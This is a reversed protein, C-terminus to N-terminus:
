GPLMGEPLECTVPLRPHEQVYKAAREVALKVARIMEQQQEVPVYFVTDISHRAYRPPLQNLALCTVDELAGPVDALGSDGLGSLVQQVVLRYYYNEVSGFDVYRM